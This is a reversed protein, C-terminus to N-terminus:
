AAFKAALKSKNILQRFCRRCLDHDQYRSLRGGSRKNRSPHPTIHIRAGCECTKM